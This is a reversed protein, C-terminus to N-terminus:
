AETQANHTRIHQWCWGRVVAPREPRSFGLTLSGRDQQRPGASGLWPNNTAKHQYRCRLAQLLCSRARAFGARSVWVLASVHSKTDSLVCYAIERITIPHFHPSFWDAHLNSRWRGASIVWLRARSWPSIAILLRAVVGVRSKCGEPWILASRSVSLGPTLSRQACLSSVHSRFIRVLPVETPM